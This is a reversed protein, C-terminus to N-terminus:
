WLNMCDLVFIITYRVCGGFRVVEINMSYYLRHNKAWISLSGFGTSM